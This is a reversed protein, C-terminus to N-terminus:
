KIPVEANVSDQHLGATRLTFRFQWQGPAPLSIQGIAHNDTIQLVPANVPDIGATTLSATVKWEEVKQQQGDPTFAYLHVSNAGTRAPSIEVQLRFGGVGMINSYTRPAHPPTSAQALPATPMTTISRIVFYGVGACVMVLAVAGGLLGIIPGNSVRVSQQPFHPQSPYAMQPMARTQGSDPQPYGAQPPNQPQGYQPQVHNPREPVAQPQAWHPQQGYGAAPPHPQSQREYQPHAQPSAYYGQQHGQQPQQEDPEYHPTPQSM